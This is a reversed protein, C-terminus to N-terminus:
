ATISSQMLRRMSTQIMAGEETKVCHPFLTARDAGLLIQAEIGYTDQDAFDEEINQWEEPIKMTQLRLRLNPIRVADLEITTSAAKNYSM